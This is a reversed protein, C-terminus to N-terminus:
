DLLQVHNLQTTSDGRVAKICGKITVRSGVQMSTNYWFDVMSDVLQATIRYRGYAADYECAIVQVQTQMIDGVRGVIQDSGVHDQSRVSPLRAVVAFQSLDSGTFQEIQAVRLSQREFWSIKGSLQKLLLGLFHQRLDRGQATELETVSDGAILWTKLMSCNSDHTMFRAPSHTNWVATVYYGRNIAHARVALAWVLDASYNM